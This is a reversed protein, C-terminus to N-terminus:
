YKPISTIIKLLEVILMRSFPAHHNISTWNLFLSIKTHSDLFPVFGWWLCVNPEGATELARSTVLFIVERLLQWIELWIMCTKTCHIDHTCLKMLSLNFPVLWRLWLLLFCYDKLGVSEKTPACYVNVCNLNWSVDTRETRARLAWM